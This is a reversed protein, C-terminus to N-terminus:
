SADIYIPLADFTAMFYDQDTERLLITGTVDLKHVTIGDMTGSYHRLKKRVAHAANLATYRNSSFVSFQVRAQGSNPEGFAFSVHPDSIVNYVLYPRAVSEDAEAFYIRDGVVDHM